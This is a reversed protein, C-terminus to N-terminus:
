EVGSPTYQVVEAGSGTARTAALPAALRAGSAGFHRTRAKAKAKAVPEKEFTDLLEEGAQDLEKERQEM